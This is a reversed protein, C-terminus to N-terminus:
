TLGTIATTSPTTTAPSRNEATCSTPPAITSTATTITIAASRGAGAAARTRFAGPTV